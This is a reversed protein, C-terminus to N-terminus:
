NFSNPHGSTERGPACPKTIEPVRSLNIQPRSKRSLYVGPSQSQWSSQPPRADQPALRSLAGLVKSPRGLGEDDTDNVLSERWAVRAARVTYLLPLM